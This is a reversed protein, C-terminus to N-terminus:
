VETRSKIKMNNLQVTVDEDPYCLGEQPHDKQGRSDTKSKNKTESSFITM